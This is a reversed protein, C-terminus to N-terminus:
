LKNQYHYSTQDLQPLKRDTHIKKQTESNQLTLSLPFRMECFHTCVDKKKAM